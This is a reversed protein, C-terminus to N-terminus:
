NFWLEQAQYDISRLKNDPYYGTVLTDQAIDTNVVSSNAGLIVNDGITCNGLASTNSYLVVGSGIKPYNIAGGKHVGGITVGQYIVLYNEFEARGIVTSVPHVLLFIDPMSIHGFLDLGFLHKNLLSCKQYLINHKNKYAENSVFYLFMAYKDGHLYDLAFGDQKLFYKGKLKSFCYEARELAGSVNKLLYEKNIDKGDPFFMKLQNELYNVLDNVM